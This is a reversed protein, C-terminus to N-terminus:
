DDNAAEKATRVVPLYPPPPEGGTQVLELTTNGGTEETLVIKGSRGCEKCTSDKVMEEKAELIRYVQFDPACCFPCPVRMTTDFGEGEIKHNEAFRAMYAQYDAPDSM